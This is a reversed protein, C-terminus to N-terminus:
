PVQLKREIERNEIEQKETVAVGWSAERDAAQADSTGSTEDTRNSESRKLTWTDGDMSLDETAQGSGDIFPEFEM